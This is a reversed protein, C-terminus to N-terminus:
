RYSLDDSDHNTIPQRYLFRKHQRQMIILSMMKHTIKIITLILVFMKM